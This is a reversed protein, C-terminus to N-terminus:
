LTKLDALVCLVCEGVLAVNLSGCVVLDAMLAVRVIPPSRATGMSREEVMVIALRRKAV